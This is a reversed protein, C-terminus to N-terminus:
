GRDKEKDMQEEVPATDPGLDRHGSPPVRIAGIDRKPQGRLVGDYDGRKIANALDIFEERGVVITNGTDTSHISLSGAFSPHPNAHITV